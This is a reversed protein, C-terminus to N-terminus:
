PSQLHQTIGYMPTIISIAIFGVVIGMVIMLVPEILTTLNKTLDNIEEEYMDSLYTLSTPLNGTQEGVIIMQAFIPPFLKPNHTLQLSLKQGKTVENAIRELAERYVLNRSSKTVIRFASVIGMDSRLLLGMTRSTNALNYYQSLRGFLPLRLLIRDVFLHFVHVRLLFFYLVSAIVLGLLLWGGNHILFNSTAILIRTPLPLQTKFSQFIPTIKPFI